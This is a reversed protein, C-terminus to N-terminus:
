RGATGVPFKEGSIDVLAANHTYHLSFYSGRRRGSLYHCTCLFRVGSSVHVSGRSKCVRSEDAPAALRQSELLGAVLSRSGQELRGRPPRHRHYPAEARIPRLTWPTHQQSVRTRSSANGVRSITRHPKVFPIIEGKKWVPLSMHVSVGRRISLSLPSQSEVAPAALRPSEYCERRGLVLAKLGHWPQSIGAINLKPESLGCLGHRITQTSSITIGM